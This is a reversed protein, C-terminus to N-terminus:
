NHVLKINDILTESTAADADKQIEFYVQFDDPDNTARNIASNLNIYIKNWTASKNIYLIDLKQVQSFSNAYLGVKILADSRYNMELFVPSDGTPLIFSGLSLGQFFDHAADLHVVGSYSGEFVESTESTKSITTDSFLTKAISIGGDEFAEKWEFVTYSNYTLTPNITTVSDPMLNISVSYPKYFPYVARTAAIGDVKIGPKIVVTHNGNFLVPITAPLEFAGVLQDDVYVWADTIKSSNSGQESTTTLDIKDIHIYSPIQEAPNFMECSSLMGAFVFIFLAPLFKQVFMM